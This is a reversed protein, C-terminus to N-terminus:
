KSIILIQAIMLLIFIDILCHQNLKDVVYWEMNHLLKINCSVIEEYSKGAALM